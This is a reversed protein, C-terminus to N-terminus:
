HFLMESRQMVFAKLLFFNFKLFARHLRQSNFSVGKEGEEGGGTRASTVTVGVTKCNGDKLIKTTDFFKIVIAFPISSSLISFSLSLFVSSIATFPTQLSPHWLDIM